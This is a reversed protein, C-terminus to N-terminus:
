PKRHGSVEKNHADKRKKRCQTAEPAPVASTGALIIRCEAEEEPFLRIKTPNGGRHNDGAIHYRSPERAELRQWPEEVSLQFTM